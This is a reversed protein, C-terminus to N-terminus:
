PVNWVNPCLQGVVSLTAEAAAVEPWDPLTCQYVGRDAEQVDRIEMNRFGLMEIREM